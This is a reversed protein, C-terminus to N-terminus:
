QKSACLIINTNDNWIRFSMFCIVGGGGGVCVSFYSIKEAMPCGFLTICFTFLFLCTCYKMNSVESQTKTPRDLSPKYYSDVTNVEYM